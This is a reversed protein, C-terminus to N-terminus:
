KKKQMSRNIKEVPIEEKVFARYNKKAEKISNSKLACKKALEEEVGICHLTYLIKAEKISNSREAIKDALIKEIGNSCLENTIEEKTEHKDEFVEPNGQKQKEDQENKLYNRFKENEASEFETKETKEVRIFLKENLAMLQEISNFAKGKERRNIGEELSTLLERVRNDEM